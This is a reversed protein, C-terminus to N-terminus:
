HQDVLAVFVLGVPAELPLHGVVQTMRRQDGRQPRQQV